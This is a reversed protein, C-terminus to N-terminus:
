IEFIDKDKFADTPDGFRGNCQPTLSSILPRIVVSYEIEFYILWAAKRQREVMAWQVPKCLMKISNPFIKFAFRKSKDPM